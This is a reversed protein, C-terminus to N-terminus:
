ALRPRSKGPQCWRWLPTQFATSRFTTQTEGTKVPFACRVGGPPRASRNRTQEYSHSKDCRTVISSVMRQLDKFPLTWKFKILRILVKRCEPQFKVRTLFHTLFSLTKVRGEFKTIRFPGDPLPDTYRFRDVIPADESVSCAAVITGNGISYTKVKEKSSLVHTKEYTCKATYLEDCGILNAITRRRKQRRKEGERPFEGSFNTLSGVVYHVDPVDCYAALQESRRARSSAAV